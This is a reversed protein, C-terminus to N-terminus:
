GSLLRDRERRDAIIDESLPPGEFTIPHREQRSIPKGTPWRVVIGAKKLSERFRADREEDTAEDSPPPTLAELRRLDEVSVLAAIPKGHREVVIREGGYAVRNLYESLRTKAEHTGVTTAM